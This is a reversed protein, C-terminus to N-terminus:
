ARMLDAMFKYLGPCAELIHNKEIIEQSLLYLDDFSNSGRFIYGNFKFLPILEDLKFLFFCILECSGDDAM